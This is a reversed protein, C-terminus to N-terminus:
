FHMCIWIHLISDKASMQFVITELKIMVVVNM